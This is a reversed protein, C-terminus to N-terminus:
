DLFSGGSMLGPTSDAHLLCGDSTVFRMEKHKGTDIVCTVDPITIGTEAINTALVIKRIGPPPVLFAREQEDTAITSHLAYIFWGNTFTRHGTLMDNLRRIEAMGPLFVLIAKSYHSYLNSTAITELLKLILGYSIRYEDLKALTALTRPSYEQLDAIQSPVKAADDDDFELAEAGGHSGSDTNFSTIEVADELYKTEVPFTRGPVNMIPAGDLYDSFREANVTASMLVIKLDPRRKLLKRIVILLFDSDISREHVEDLVLHTIGGLDDSGELMRMVIGTTAYVLRTQLTFNSELRIAFGVLSRFTGVDGKREGLEESVRRALSIASIRRPETCYVKCSRGSSLEHELIFAPVQTSKGCGTEGCIIVVQNDRIADLLEDKFTWIPLSMRSVLMHQYSPTSSKSAWLVKVDDSPSLNLNAQRQHLDVAISKQDPTTQTIGSSQENIKKDVQGSDAIMTRLERLVQRDTAEDQDKKLQALEKWLDRWTSPLRLHVKEEKPSSSFILFIAVTSIYAESQALTPCSVSVMEIGISRIDSQCSLKDISMAITPDQSRSWRVEVLQRNSFSSASMMKYTVRSASDRDLM